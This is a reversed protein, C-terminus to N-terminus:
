LAELERGTTARTPCPDQACLEPQVLSSYDVLYLKDVETM